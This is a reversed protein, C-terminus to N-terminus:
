GSPRIPVHLFQWSQFISYQYDARLSVSRSFSYGGNASLTNSFTNARYAQIGRAFIDSQEPRGGILFAPTEPTYLFTDTLQLYLGHLLENTWPSIDSTAFVNTSVFSFEPNYAFYNGNVEAAVTTDALRSKNKVELGAGLTTVFDWQQKGAPIFEKPSYYVNSDYRQSLNVSPTYKTEAQSISAITSQVM